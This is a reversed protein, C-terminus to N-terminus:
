IELSMWVIRGHAIVVIEKRSRSEADLVCTVADDAIPGDSLHKLIISTSMTRQSFNEPCRSLWRNTAESPVDIERLVYGQNLFGGRTDRVEHISVGRPMRLGSLGELDKLVSNKDGSQQIIAVAFAVALLAIAGTIWLWRRKSQLM